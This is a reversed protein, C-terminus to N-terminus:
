GAVVELTVVGFAVAVFMGFILCALGLAICANTM